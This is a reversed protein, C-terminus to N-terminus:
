QRITTSTRSYVRIIRTNTWRRDVKGGQEQANQTDGGQLVDSVGEVGTAGTKGLADGAAAPSAPITALYRLAQLPHITPTGQERLQMQICAAAALEHAERGRLQGAQYMAEVLNYAAECHMPHLTLVQYHDATYDTTMIRLGHAVLLLHIFMSVCVCMRARVCTYGCVCMWGYVCVCVCVFVYVCVCM